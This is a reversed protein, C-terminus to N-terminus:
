VILNKYNKGFGYFRFVGYEEVRQCSLIGFDALKQLRETFARRSIEMLQMDALFRKYGVIAYRAGGIEVKKMQPYFDVFWRLIVLDTCDVKIVTKKGGKEIEKKLTTAYKQSFGEITNKM